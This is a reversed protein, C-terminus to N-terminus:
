RSRVLMNGDAWSRIVGDETLRLEGQSGTFLIVAAVPQEPTAYLFRQTVGPRTPVDVARWQADAAFAASAAFSCLVSLWRTILPRRPLNKDVSIASSLLIM